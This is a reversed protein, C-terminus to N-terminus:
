FSFEKRHYGYKRNKLHMLWLMSEMKEKERSMKLFIELEREGFMGQEELHQIKEIEEQEILEEVVARIRRRLLSEAKSKEETSKLPDFYLEMMKKLDKDM